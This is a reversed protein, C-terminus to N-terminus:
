VHARGIELPVMRQKKGKGKIRVVNQSLDVEEINLAVLESVRMGTSYLTELMARDRLGQWTDTPPTELLRTIQEEDLFSPLRREMRPAPVVAAPNDTLAGERCLFRFFSRLCSLKRAITRRAQAAASLQSVFRRIDLPSIDGLRQNGLFTFFQALDLAYNRCTHSSANRETDLYRLFRDTPKNTPSM